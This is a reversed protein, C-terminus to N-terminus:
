RTNIFTNCRFQRQYRRTHNGILTSGVKHLNDLKEEGEMKSIWLNIIIDLEVYGISIRGKTTKLLKSKKSEIVIEFKIESYSLSPIM